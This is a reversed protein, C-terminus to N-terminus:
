ANQIKYDVKGRQSFPSSYIMHPMKKLFFVDNRFIILGNRIVTLLNWKMNMKPLLQLQSQVACFIKFLFALYINALPNFVLSHDQSMLNMCM